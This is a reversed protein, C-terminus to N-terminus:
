KKKDYQDKIWCLVDEVFRLLNHLQLYAARLICTLAIVAWLWWDKDEALVAGKTIATFAYAFVVCIFTEVTNGEPALSWIKQLLKSLKM